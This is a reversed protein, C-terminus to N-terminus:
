AGRTLSASISSVISGVNLAAAVSSLELIISQHTAGNELPFRLVLRLGMDWHLRYHTWQNWVLKSAVLLFLSSGTERIAM